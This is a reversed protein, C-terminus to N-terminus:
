ARVAEKEVKDGAFPLEFWFRTGRGVTSEAHIQEGHAQLIQKVISLGLGTGGSKRSRDPNVRYFREFIRELDEESIGKGTDVVEIRVKDAHRRYRCRVSGEPTYAIANEILNTLVQRIRDPDAEVYLSPNDMELSLDKEEAKPELLERVDVVVKKLDFVQSRILDERYELQAIDILDNFLSNLRQLNTLGKEAYRKRQEDPLSSSSLAELYGSVAFIPNRVEHSVNGIFESQLQTLRELEDIQHRFSSSMSNLNRALDQIEAARTDVRIKKEFDGDSINRASNRITKLPTTVQYAAIWSGLLSMILAAIMGVALVIQMRRVVNFLPPEAQGIRVFLGTRPSRLAAFLRREGAANTRTAYQVEGPELLQMEPQEWFGRQGGQEGRVNWYLTSDPSAVTIHLDAHQAIGALIQRGQERTTAQEVQVTIRGIQQHLTRQIAQDVEERLFFALYFGVGVVAIGVFLAFTLFMWTQTSARPPFIWYQLRKLWGM